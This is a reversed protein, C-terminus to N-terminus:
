MEETPGTAVNDLTKCKPQTKHVEVELSWLVCGLHLVNSLTAVPGVSSIYPFLLLVQAEPRPPPGCMLQSPSLLRTDSSSRVGEGGRSM